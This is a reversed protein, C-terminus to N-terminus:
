DRTLPTLSDRQWPGPQHNHRLAMHRHTGGWLPGVALARTLAPGVPLGAGQFTGADVGHVAGVQVARTEALLTLGVM